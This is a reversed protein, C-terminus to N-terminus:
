TDVHRLYNDIIKKKRQQSIKIYIGTSLALMKLFWDLVFMFANGSLEKMATQTTVCSLVCDVILNHRYIQGMSNLSFFM